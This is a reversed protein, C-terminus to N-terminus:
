QKVTINPVLLYACECAEINVRQENYARVTFSSPTRTIIQFTLWVETTKSVYAQQKFFLNYNNDSREIIPVVIDVSSASSSTMNTWAPVTFRGSYPLYESLNIQHDNFVLAVDKFTSM